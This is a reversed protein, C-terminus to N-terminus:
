PKGLARRHRALADLFSNSASYNLQGMNGYVSGSSFLWFFSLNPNEFREFADHIFLAARSKATFVQDFKEWTQNILMADALFGASHIFGTINPSNTKIFQDVSEAKGCDCKEQEVKIGGM